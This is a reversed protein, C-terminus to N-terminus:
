IPEGTSDEAVSRTLAGRSLFTCTAEALDGVAGGAIQYNNIMANGHFNPNTASAASNDPKIQIEFAADQQGLPFLTADVSGSDFDQTFTVDVNWETIGQLRVRSTDGMATADVPAGPYNLTLSRVHDSLDVGNVKLFADKWVFKAM